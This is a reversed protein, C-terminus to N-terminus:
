IERQYLTESLGTHRSGDEQDSLWGEKNDEARWRRERAIDSIFHGISNSVKYTEGWWSASQKLVREAAAASEPSAAMEKASTWAGGGVPSRETWGPTFDSFARVVQTIYNKGDSYFRFLLELKRNYVDVALVEGCRAHQHVAAGASFEVKKPPKPGPTLPLAELIKKIM